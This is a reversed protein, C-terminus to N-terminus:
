GWNALLATLDTGNVTGNRDLDAAFQSTGWAALLATLDTANVAGDGNIDGLRRQVGTAVIDVSLGSTFTGDGFTGSLLLNATGGTPLVTPLALPQSEIAPPAPFTTGEEDVDISATVSVAPGNVSLRGTLPLVLAQPDGGLPTGTFEGTLTVEAPIAATFPTGQADPAGFVLAAAATQRVTLATIEGAALPVPITFGGPFTSNPTFTRFTQYNINLTVGFDQAEGGTLDIELGAIRSGSDAIDLTFSGTPSASFGADGLITSTYPVPNNGSGGFLGLRTQTGGPNTAADYNGILTGNLPLTLQGANSATSTPGLSCVYTDAAAVGGLAASATAAALGCAFSGHRAHQRM